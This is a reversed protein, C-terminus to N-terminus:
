EGLPWNLFFFTDFWLFLINLICPTSLLFFSFLTSCYNHTNEESLKLCYLILPSFFRHNKDVGSPQKFICLLFFFSALSFNSIVIFYHVSTLFFSPANFFSGQHMKAFWMGCPNWSRAFYLPNKTLVISSFAAASKSESKSDEPKQNWTEDTTEKDWVGWPGKVSSSKPSYDVQHSVCDGPNCRGDRGKSGPHGPPGPLGPVGQQGVPGPPGIKGYGPAGPVGPRFLSAMKRAVKSCLTTILGFSQWEYTVQPVQFVM